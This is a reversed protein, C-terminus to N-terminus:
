QNLSWTLRRIHTPELLSPVAPYELLNPYHEPHHESVNIGYSLSRGKFSKLLKQKPTLLFTRSAPMEAAQRVSYVNLAIEIEMDNTDLMSITNAVPESYLLRAMSSFYRTMRTTNERLEALLQDAIADNRAPELQTHYITRIPISLLM